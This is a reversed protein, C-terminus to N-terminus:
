LLTSPGASRKIRILDHQKRASIKSPGNSQKGGELGECLVVCTTMAEACSAAKRTGVISFSGITHGRGTSRRRLTSSVRTRTEEGRARELACISCACGLTLSELGRQLLHLRSHREFNRTHDVALRHAYVLGEQICLLESVLSAFLDLGSLEALLEDRAVVGPVQALEVLRVLRGDGGRDVARERSLACPLRERPVVAGGDEELRCVKDAALVAVLEKRGGHEALALVRPLRLDVSRGLHTTTHDCLGLIRVLTM